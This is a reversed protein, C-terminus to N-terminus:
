DPPWLNSDQRACWGEVSTRVPPQTHDPSLVASTLASVPGRIIVREKTMMVEGVFARVYNKRTAMNESNDLKARLADAFQAIAREDVRKGKSGIQRDLVRIEEDLGSRRKQHTAIRAKLDKDTPEIAGAEVLEFIRRIANEVETREARLTGVMHRRKSDAGESREILASLLINLRDPKLLRRKLAEVVAQDVVEMPVNNGGCTRDKKRRVNSCAYYRYIGGKGTMLMMTGNCGANGCRGLGSLLVPSSHSRAPAMKPDRSKLLMQVAAFDADSIIRPVPVEIWEDRPRAIRTRSDQTNYYHRGVYSERTLITHVINPTFQSGRYTRGENNLEQALRGIGVSQSAGRGLYRGFVHRIQAAEAPVTRLKKKQKKGRLEAVYTEYGLPPISGNWFGETANARMMQTVTEATIASSAADMAAIITRQLKAHPGPAIQQTASLLDVGAKELKRRYGELEYDDRFFRSFNYIFVAKFKSERSCCDAMMQQFQPRRDSRGSAGGDVYEFVLNYGLRSAEATNARRQEDLSVGEDAQRKTSVRLYSVATQLESNEQM